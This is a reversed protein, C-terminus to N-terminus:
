REGMRKPPALHEVPRRVGPRGYEERIALMTDYSAQPVGAFICNSSALVYGGRDVGGYELAYLTSARILEERGEQLYSCDVNGILCVRDGVEAALRRVDVGAMPDLSHLADTGSGVLQDLIPLIDGDTHKVTFMGLEHLGTVFDTLFPTVFEAFMPPSLFPGENFCYDACMFVIEAGADRLTRAAALQSEVARHSAEKTEEAHDALHLVHEMMNTGSPIAHTPDLFASLMYTDGALERILEFTRCQDDLPLWHTGTIVNWRFREAVRVWLEANRKLLDDRASGSLEKLADWGVAAQGFETATLQYELELHPVLGEPPQRRLARIMAERPTM